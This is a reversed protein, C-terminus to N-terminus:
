DPLPSCQEDAMGYNYLMSHMFANGVGEKSPVNTLDFQTRGHAIM